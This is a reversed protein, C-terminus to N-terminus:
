GKLVTLMSREIKEELKIIEKLLDGSKAPAKYKYFYRTLPIEYGIKIKDKDYCYNPVFPKVEKDLYNDINIVNFSDDLMPINEIDSKGKIVKPQKKKDYQKKGKSDLDLQDVVVKRYKFYDNPYKKCFDGEQNSQYISIIDKQCDKTIERRKNGMSKKMPRYFNPDDSNDRDSADILQITHNRSESKSKSLIWIYSAIGTNYFMQEPLAVIAELYNNEIIFRRVESEGGEADGSFLPSGNHIIAMRGQKKLKHLMNQLFLLQGDNIRPLKDLFRSTKQDEVEKKVFGQDIKWECGFPPNTICIDFKQSALQDESLTSGEYINKPNEGRIMMEAKCIAYAEANVDQGYLLVENEDKNLREMIREKATFLMGGTGCCGDYVEIIRDKKEFEEIHEALILDVCLDVIERPTYHDGAEANAKYERIIEEFIYGMSHQDVASLSFDIDAFERVIELLRKAKSLIRIEKDFELKDFIERASESFANLYEKFNVEINLADSLLDQFTICKKNFFPVGCKKIIAKELAADNMKKYAPLNILQMIEENKDELMCDFRRLISFPIIVNGYKESVYLGRLKNAVSKLIHKIKEDLKSKNKVENNIM